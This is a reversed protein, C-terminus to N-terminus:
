YINNPDSNHTDIQERAYIRSYRKIYGTYGEYYDKSRGEKPTLGEISDKEGEVFDELQKLSADLEKEFCNM